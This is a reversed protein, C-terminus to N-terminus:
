LMSKTMRSSRNRILYYMIEFHRLVAYTGLVTRRPGLTRWSCGNGHAEKIPVLSVKREALTKFSCHRDTKRPPTYSIYVEPSWRSDSETPRHHSVQIKLFCVWTIGETWM